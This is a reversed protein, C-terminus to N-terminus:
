NDIPQAVITVTEWGDAGGGEIACDITNIVSFGAIQLLPMVTSLSWIKERITSLHGLVDQKEQPLAELFNTQSLIQSELEFKVASWMLRQIGNTDRYPTVLVQGEYSTMNSVSTDSFMAFGFVGNPKLLGKVRKLLAIVAEKQWFCNISLDALIIIDFNENINCTESLFDGHLIRLKSALDPRSELRKALRALSDQSSDVGLVEFGKEALHFAVRGSGCGIELIRGKHQNVVQFIANLDWTVNSSVSEEFIEFPGTYYPHIKINDFDQVLNQFPPLLEQKLDLSIDM